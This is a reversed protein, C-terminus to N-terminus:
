QQRGPWAIEAEAAAPLSGGALGEGTCPLDEEMVVATEGRREEEGEEAADAKFAMAAEMAADEEELRLDGGLDSPAEKRAEIPAVEEMGVGETLMPESGAWAEAAGRVTAGGGLKDPPLTMEM